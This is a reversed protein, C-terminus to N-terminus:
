PNSSIQPTAFQGFYDVPQGIEYSVLARITLAYENLIATGELRSIDNMSTPLYGISISAQEMQQQALTSKLAPSVEWNRTRAENSWSRMRISYIEQRNTTQVETLVDSVPDNEYKTKTAFTKSGLVALVLYLREDPPIDIKQNYLMVQEDKLGLRAQLINAVVKIPEIPPNNAM